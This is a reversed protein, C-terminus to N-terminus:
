AIVDHIALLLDRPWQDNHYTQVQKGTETAGKVEFGHVVAVVSVSRLKGQLGVALMMLESDEIPFGEFQQRLFYYHLFNDGLMFDQFCLFDGIKGWCHGDHKLREANGHPPKSHMDDFPSM